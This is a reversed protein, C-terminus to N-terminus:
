ACVQFLFNLKEETFFNKFVAHSNLTEWSFSKKNGIFNNIKGCHAKTCKREGIWQIELTWYGNLYPQISTRTKGYSMQLTNKVFLIFMLHWGSSRNKHILFYILYFKLQIKPFVIQLINTKKWNKTWKLAGFCTYLVMLYHNAKNM